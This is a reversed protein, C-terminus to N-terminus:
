RPRKPPILMFPDCVGSGLTIYPFGERPDLFVKMQRIRLSSGIPTPITIDVLYRPTLNGRPDVDLNQPLLHLARVLDYSIWCVPSLNAAIALAHVEKKNHSLSVLM